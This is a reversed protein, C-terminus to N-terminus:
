AAEPWPIKKVDGWSTTSSSLGVPIVLPTQYPIEVSLCQKISLLLEDTVSATPAQFVISDHVQLLLQVTPYHMRDLTVLGRDIALAVTSQPIWALAEPLLNETRGFYIRSYGFANYVAPLAQQLQGAIRRHWEKIAPHADFWRAQFREAAAVTIGLNRALTRASSGYNTAHVGVKALQRETDTISSHGFIAQANTRHLDLTKDTRAAIFFEMLPVDGADWAVIQADAQALDADFITYGPDPILVKRVNPRKM